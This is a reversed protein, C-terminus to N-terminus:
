EKNTRIIQKTVPNIENGYMDILVSTKIPKPSIYVGGRKTNTM